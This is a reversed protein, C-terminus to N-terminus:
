LPSEVSQRDVLRMQNYFLLDTLFSVVRHFGSKVPIAYVLIVIKLFSRQMLSSSYENIELFCVLYHLTNFSINRLKEDCRAFLISLVVELIELM